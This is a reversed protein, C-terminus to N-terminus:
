ACGECRLHAVHYSLSDHTREIVMDRVFPKIDDKLVAMNAELVNCTKSSMPFYMHSTASRRTVLYARGAKALDKYFKYGGDPNTRNRGDYIIKALWQRFVGLAMQM